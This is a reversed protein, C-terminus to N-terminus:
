EKMSPKSASIVATQSWVMFCSGLENEVTGIKIGPLYENPDYQHLENLFFITAWQTNPRFGYEMADSHNYLMWPKGSVVNPSRKSQNQIRHTNWQQRIELAEDRVLPIYVALMIIRDARELKDYVLDTEM